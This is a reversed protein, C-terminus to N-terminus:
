ENKDKPFEKWLGTGENSSGAFLIESSKYGYVELMATKIKTNNNETYNNIAPYARAMGAFISLISRLPYEIQLIPEIRPIVDFTIGAPAEKESFNDPIFKGVVSRCKEKDTKGPDDYYLGFCPERSWDTNYKEKIAQEVISTQKYAQSYDGIYTVYAIRTEPFITKQVEVKHLAGTAWIVYIVLAIIITIFITLVVGM